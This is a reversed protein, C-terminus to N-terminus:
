DVILDTVELIPEWNSQCFVRWAGGDSRVRMLVLSGLVDGGPPKGRLDVVSATGRELLSAAVYEARGLLRTNALSYRRLDSDGSIPLDAKIAELLTEDALRYAPESIRSELLSVVDRTDMFIAFHDSILYFASEKDRRQLEITESTAHSRAEQIACVPPDDPPTACGTAIVLVIMLTSVTRM